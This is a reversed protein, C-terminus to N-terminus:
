IIFTLIHAIPNFVKNDQLLPKEFGYIRFFRNKLIETDSLMTKKFIKSDIELTKFDSSGM